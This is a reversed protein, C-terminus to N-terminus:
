TSINNGPPPALSDREVFMMDVMVNGSVPEHHPLKQFLIIAHRAIHEFNQQEGTIPPNYWAEEPAVWGVVSIEEPVRKGYEKLFHILQSADGETVCLVATVGSRIIRKVVFRFEEPNGAKLFFIDELGHKRVIEQFVDRRIHSSQNAEQMLYQGGFLGIKRHGAELLKEMLLSMGQENNSSISYVGELTRSKTNICLLPPAMKRSWIRELGNLSLISIAGCINQKELIGISSAELMEVLFGANRLHFLLVELMRYLYRSMALSPVILAVTRSSGTYGVTRACELIKGRVNEAVGPAGRLARSVTSPSFGTKESITKLNTKMSFVYQRFSFKEVM